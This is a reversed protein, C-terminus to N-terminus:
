PRIVVMDPNFAAGNLFIGLGQKPRRQQRTQDAPYQRGPFHTTVIATYCGFGAIKLQLERRHLARRGPPIRSCPQRELKLSNWAFFGDKRIIVRIQLLDYHNNNFFVKM